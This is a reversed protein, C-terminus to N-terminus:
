FKGENYVRISEISKFFRKEFETRGRIDLLLKNYIFINCVSRNM